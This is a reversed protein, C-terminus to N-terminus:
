QVPRDGDHPRGNVEGGAHTTRRPSRLRQPRGFANPGPTLRRMVKPMRMDAVHTSLSVPSKVPSLM